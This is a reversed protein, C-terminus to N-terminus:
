VSEALASDSKVHGLESLTGGAKVVALGAESRECGLAQGAIVVGQELGKVRGTSAVLVEELVGRSTQALAAM